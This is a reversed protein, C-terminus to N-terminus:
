TKSAISHTIPVRHRLMVFCKCDSQIYSTRCYLSLLINGFNTMFVISSDVRKVVFM